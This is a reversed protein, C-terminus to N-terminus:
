QQYWGIECACMDPEMCHGHECGQSCIPEPCPNEPDVATDNDPEKWGMKCYPLGDDGCDYSIARKLNEAKCPHNDIRMETDLLGAGHTGTGTIWLLHLLLWSIWPIWKLGNVPDM